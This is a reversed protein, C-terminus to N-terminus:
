YDGLNTWYSWSSWRVYMNICLYFLNFGMEGYITIVKKFYYENNGYKLKENARRM